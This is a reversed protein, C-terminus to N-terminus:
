SGLSAAVLSPALGSAVSFFSKFVPTVRSRPKRRRAALIVGVRGRVTDGLLRLGFRRTLTANTLLGRMAPLALTMSMPVEEDSSSACTTVTVAVLALDGLLLNALDGCGSSAVTM